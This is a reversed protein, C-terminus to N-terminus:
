RTVNDPSIGFSEQPKNKLELIRTHLAADGEKTKLQICPLIKKQLPAVISTQLIKEVTSSLSM